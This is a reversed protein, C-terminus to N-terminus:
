AAHQVKVAPQIGVPLLLLAKMYLVCVTTRRCANGQRREEEQMALNHLIEQDDNQSWM